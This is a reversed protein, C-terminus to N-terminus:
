AATSFNAGCFSWSTSHPWKGTRNRVVRESEHLLRVIADAAEKEPHIIHDAGLEEPTFIFSSATFEPNRVRAITMATGAKKAIRCVMVNADDNNTMAAVIDMREIGSQRLTDYSAANGEVVFADLQERARMARIPEQEIITLDHREQSLRRSLQLGVDGAGVVLIRM